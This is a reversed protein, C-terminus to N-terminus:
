HRTDLYAWGNNMSLNCCDNRTDKDEAEQVQQELPYHVWVAHGDGYGVNVGDLHARHNERSGFADSIVACNDARWHGGRWDPDYSSRYTSWGPYSPDRYVYATVIAGGPVPNAYADRSQEHSANRNSRCYFSASAPQYDNAFLVGLGDWRDNIRAHDAHAWHHNSYLFPPAQFRYDEAYMALALISQKLNNVCDIRRAKERALNLMPLLIGLLVGIVSIVILLEILTFEARNRMSPMRNMAMGGAAQPGHQQNLSLMFWALLGSSASAGGYDNDSDNDNDFFSNM